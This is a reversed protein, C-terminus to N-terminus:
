SAFNINQVPNFSGAEGTSSDGWKPNPPNLPPALHTPKYCLAIPKLAFSHTEFMKKLPQKDSWFNTALFHIGLAQAGSMDYGNSEAMPAESLPAVFSPNMQIKKKAEIAADGTILGIQSPDYELPIGEKESFNVFDMFRGTGRRNSIIVVKSFLQYIPVKFLNDSNRCNNFAADLRYPLITSELIDAMADFTSVRPVGRFRFYLIVPDQKGQGQGPAMPQPLLLSTSDATAYGPGIPPLATDLVAQLINVFPLANLTTRRWFSGADMAEITPGFEGGPSLDPWIDFVFARAGGYTALRAADPSVVGNVAPFFLGTANVTSVYFNTFCLFDDTYGQAILSNYLAPLGKRKPADTLYHTAGDVDAKLIRAINMPTALDQIAGFYWYFIFFAAIIILIAQWTPFAQPPTYLGSVRIQAFVQSARTLGAQIGPSLMDWFTKKGATQVVAPAAAAAAAAVAAM